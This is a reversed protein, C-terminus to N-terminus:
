SHHHIQDLHIGVQDSVSTVPSSVENSIAHSVAADHNGVNMLSHNDQIPGSHDMSLPQHHDVMELYGLDNMHYTFMDLGTPTISDHIPLTIIHTQTPDDGAHYGSIAHNDGLDLTFTYSQSTNDAFPNTHDVAPNSLDTVKVGVDLKGFNLPSDFYSNKFQEGTLLIASSNGVTGINHLAGDQGFDYFTTGPLLGSVQVVDSDELNSIQDAIEFVHAGVHSTAAAESTTGEFTTGQGSQAPENFNMHLAIPDTTGLVHEGDAREEYSTVTVQADFSSPSSETPMVFIRNHLLDDYTFTWVGQLSTLPAIVNGEEHYLYVGDPVQSLHVTYNDEHEPTTPTVAINEASLPVPHGDGANGHVDHTTVQPPHDNTSSTSASDSTTTVTSSSDSTSSHHDTSSTHVTSSSESATSLVASTTGSTGTPSDVMVQFPDPLTGSIVQGGHTYSVQSYFNGLDGSFDSPGTIQLDQLAVITENTPIRFDWEGTQNNYTGYITEHAGNQGIGTLKFAIQDWSKLGSPLDNGPTVGFSLLHDSGDAASLQLIIGAAITMFNAQTLNHAGNGGNFSLTVANQTPTIDMPFILKLDTVVHGSSDAVVGTLTLNYSGSHTAETFIHSDPTWGHATLDFITGMVKYGTPSSEGPNQIYIYDGVPIGSVVLSQIHDGAPVANLYSAPIDLPIRTNEPGTPDQFFASDSANIDNKNVSTFLQMSTVPYGALTVYELSPINSAFNSNIQDMFASLDYIGNSGPPLVVYNFGNYIYIEQLNTGNDSIQLLLSQFSIGPQNLNLLQFSIFFQEMSMGFNKMTTLSDIIIPLPGQLDPPVNPNVNVVDNPTTSTSSTSSSAEQNTSTLAIGPAFRGLQLTAQFADNSAGYVAQNLTSYAPVALSFTSSSDSIVVTQVHATKPAAPLVVTAQNEVVPPLVPIVIKKSVGYFTEQRASVQTVQESLFAVTVDKNPYNSSGRHLDSPGGSAGEVGVSTRSEFNKAVDLQAAETPEIAVLVSLGSTDDATVSQPGGEPTGAGEKFDQAM